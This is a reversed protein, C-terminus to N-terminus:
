GRGWRELRERLRDLNSVQRDISPFDSMLQEFSPISGWATVTFTEFAKPSKIELQYNKLDFRKRLIKLWESASQPPAMNHRGVWPIWEKIQSQHCFSMEAIRPFAEEVDIALDYAGGGFMYGDYVTLSVPTKRAVSVTEDAPYEPTFAHPVNIGYAVRRVAEAVTVHDNHIGSLVDAPLPPCFLYDPEFERIAKWLAAMLPLNLQLCSDRPIEGDAFRLLEFEYRGIEASQQQERRRVDGTEERTRFHHGAKGDTCVLVRARLDDGLKRRWLEFTGSAVFEFDDFHAHVSLVKMISRRNTRHEHEVRVLEDAFSFSSTGRYGPTEWDPNM